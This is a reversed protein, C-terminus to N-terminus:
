GYVSNYNFAVKGFYNAAANTIPQGLTFNRGQVWGGTYAIILAAPSPNWIGASQLYRRNINMLCAAGIISLFPNMPDLTIKYVRNIDTLAIPKLQMLGCAGSSICVNQFSCTDPDFNSEQMAISSLLGEPVNCWQEYYRFYFTLLECDNM